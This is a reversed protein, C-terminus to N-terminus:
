KFCDGPFLEPTEVESSTLIFKRQFSSYLPTDSHHMVKIEIEGGIPLELTDPVFQLNEIKILAKVSM